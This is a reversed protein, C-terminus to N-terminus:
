AVVRPRAGAVGGQEQQEVWALVAERRYRRWRGLTVCPLRGDRTAARVWSTKVNLLEAVEGADLLRDPESV